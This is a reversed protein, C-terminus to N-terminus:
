NLNVSQAAQWAEWALQVEYVRYQGPWAFKSEDAPWRDVSREFPPSSIWSEFAERTSELCRTPPCEDHDCPPLVSM